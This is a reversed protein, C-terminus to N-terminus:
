GEGKVSIRAVLDRLRCGLASPATLEIQNAIPSADFHVIGM